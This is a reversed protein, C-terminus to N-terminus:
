RSHTHTDTQRDTQRITHDVFRLLSVAVNSSSRWLFLHVSIQSTTIKKQKSETTVLNYPNIDSHTQCSFYEAAENKSRESM